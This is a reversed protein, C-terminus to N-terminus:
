PKPALLVGNALTAFPEYNAQIIENCAQPLLISGRGSKDNVQLISIHQAAFVAECPTFPQRGVKLSQGYNFFDVTFERGSWYCLELAECAASGGPMSAIARIDRMTDLELADLTRIDRWSGPSLSATIAGFYIGLLLTAAAGFEIARLPKPVHRPWGADAALATCLSVAISFDFFANVGVGVGSSAIAAVLAASVMYMVAFHARESTRALPVAFLALGFM